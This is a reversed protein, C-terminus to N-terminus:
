QLTNECPDLTASFDRPTIRRDVHAEGGQVTFDSYVSPLIGNSM